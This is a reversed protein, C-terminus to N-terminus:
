APPLTPSPFRQSASSSAPDFKSSANTPTRETDNRKQGLTRRVVAHIAGRTVREGAFPCPAIKPGIDAFRLFFFTLALLAGIGFTADWRPHRMSPWWDERSTLRPTAAFPARRRAGALRAWASACFLSVVWACIDPVGTRPSNGRGGAM